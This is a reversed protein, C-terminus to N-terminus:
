EGALYNLGLVALRLPAPSASDITHCDVPEVRSDVPGFSYGELDWWCGLFYGLAFTRWDLTRSPVYPAISPLYALYETRFSYVSSPSARYRPKPAVEEHYCRHHAFPM